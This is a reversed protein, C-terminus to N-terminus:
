KASASANALRYVLVEGRPPPASTRRVVLYTGQRLTPEMAAGEVRVLSLGLM